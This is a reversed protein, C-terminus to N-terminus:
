IKQYVNNEYQLQTGSNLYDSCDIMSMVDEFCEGDNKTINMLTVIKGSTEVVEYIDGEIRKTTLEQKQEELLKDIMEEITNSVFETAQSDVFFKDNGCRLVCGIQVDKPLEESKLSIVKNASDKGCICLNYVDDDKSHKAYVYYMTGSEFNADAYENLINSREVLMRDRYSTIVKGQEDLEQLLNKDSKENSKNNHFKDALFRNLKDLLSNDEDKASFGIKDMFDFKLFKM